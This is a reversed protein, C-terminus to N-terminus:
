GYFRWVEREPLSLAHKSRVIECARVYNAHADDPQGLRTREQYLNFAVREIEEKHTNEFNDM